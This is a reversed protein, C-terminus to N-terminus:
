VMVTLGFGVIVAIGLWVNQAPLATGAVVGVVVGAPALIEHVLELVAIPSPAEPFVETLANVAVLLPEEAMVDVTVSVGVSLPHVPFM